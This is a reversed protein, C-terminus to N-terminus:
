GVRRRLRRVWLEHHINGTSPSATDPDASLGHESRERDVRHGAEERRGRTGGSQDFPHIRRPSPRAESAYRSLLQGVEAASFAPRLRLAILVTYLFVLLDLRASYSSAAIRCYQIELGLRTQDSVGQRGVLQIPGTVGAKTLFREEVHPHEERLCAIVNEPLPRSGILSMRGTLVHFLQPLETLHFREIVRGIPTYLHSDPTINLFRVKDVPITNRNAIKDANKVMTRLKLLRISRTRSVRRNSIYFVPWGSALLVAVCCAAVAPVWMIAGALVFVIDFLRKRKVSIGASEARASADEPDSRLQDSDV